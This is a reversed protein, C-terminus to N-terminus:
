LADQTDKESIGFESTIADSMQSECAIPEPLESFDIEKKPDHNQSNVDEPGDFISPYIAGLVMLGVAGLVVLSGVAQYFTPYDGYPGEETRLYINIIILIMTTAPIVFKIFFNWVRPIQRNGNTGDQTVTSNIWCCIEDIQFNFLKDFVTSMDLGSFKHGAVVAFFTGIIFIGFGCGFGIPAAITGGIPNTLLIAIISGSVIAGIYSVEFILMCKRGLMDVMTDHRHIWSLAFAEMGGVALLCYSAIYHDVADLLYLGVDSVYWISLLWALAYVLGIKLKPLDKLYPMYKTDDIGGTVGEMGGFLSDIGLFFITLFFLINFFQPAPLEALATPYVIFALSSGGDTVDEIPVGTLNSFWGLIEFVAFGTFFSFTSNGAAVIVSNKVVSFGRPTYSGFTILSAFALGLSFFIQSIADLWMQGQSLNSFEWTGIYVSIGEEAGDLTAGRILLVLLMIIHATVTVYTIYGVTKTGNFVALYSFVWMAFNAGFLASSIIRTSSPDGSELLVDDYFHETPKDLLTINYTEGEVIEVDWPLNSYFSEILYVLGWALIAAYYTSTVFANYVAAAGIGRFHKNIHGFAGIPGRQSANGIGTELTLLPIGLFLLGFLYPVFFAGGGHRYVFIPFRWLNGLGIAFGIASLIFAATSPFTHSEARDVVPRDILRM